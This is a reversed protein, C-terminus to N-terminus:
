PGLEAGFAGRMRGGQGLGGDADVTWLGVAALPGDASSGVFKGEDSAGADLGALGACDFYSITLLSQSDHEFRMSGSDVLIAM